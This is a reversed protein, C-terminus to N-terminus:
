GDKDWAISSQDDKDCSISDQIGKGTGEQKSTEYPGEDNDGGKNSLLKSKSM